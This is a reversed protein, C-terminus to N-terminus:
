TLSPREKRPQTPAPFHRQERRLPLKKPQHRQRGQEKKLRVKQRAKERTRKPELLRYLAILSSRKEDMYDHGDYHRAQVGAIGHSQLRGRIEGSIKAKALATEVGSRLRKTQFNEIADGVIETAWNSLTTPALHTKGVDTSLAYEGQPHCEELAKAAATILPLPHERPPRGPRGKGDFLKIENESIHETRLRVFQAIRQAGTLLHVRLAAAKVGPTDRILRWYIRLEEETLPKKDSNNQAEDPATDSVPNIRVDFNKFAVPISPKSKAARAVQYAAHLYSRLKNSTRGKGADLLRRMMDAIQEPTVDKAPLAAVKPWAEKVHLKFISRADRHSNRGIAELYDCYNDCLRSLSHQASQAALAATQKTVRHRQAVDVGTALEALLVLARTRAQEVSLTPFRGLTIRQPSGNKVRGYVSFTKAGSSSVRLRLADVKTDSYSARGTAPPPLETLLAKTFNFKSPLTM